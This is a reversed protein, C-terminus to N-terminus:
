SHNFSPATKFFGDGQMKEIEDIKSSLFGYLQAYEEDTKAAAFQGKGHLVLWQVEVRGRERLQYRLFVKSQVLVTATMSGLFPLLVLLWHNADGLSEALGGQDLAAILATGFGAVLSFYQCAYWAYCNRNKSKKYWPYYDFELEKILAQAADMPKTFIQGDMLGNRKEKSFM